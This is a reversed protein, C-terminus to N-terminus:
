KTKFTFEGWPVEAYFGNPIPTVRLNYTTEPTLDTFEFHTEKTIYLKPLGHNGPGQDFLLLAYGTAGSSRNWSETASTREAKTALREVAGPYQESHPFTLLDHGFWGGALSGLGVCNNYYPGVNFGPTGYLAANGNSGGFGVQSLQENVLFGYVVPNFQGLKGLGMYESAANLISVYGAWIPASVSTGGIQIWGGNIKSYVAVGTFPDGVAAVDPVNRLTTSNGSNEPLGNYDSTQYFPISWYSSIGGGTAGENFALENWVQEELYAKGAGSLLTTGGVCTVFPQSGPDSVNLQAPYYRTGTDGYAGTDGASALVSIGQASLQIFLTNEAALQTDGQEIEDAAYSISLTQAKNDTAVQDLADLLAVQFTDTGDEYVLVKELNPNIGIVMDIDLAAELEINAYNVAGNYGNVGVFSVPIQPLKMKDLYTNIDSKYFGGQEFLAVTQPKVEGFGPVAYISRLDSASYAGGPGTGADTKTDLTAPNDGFVQHVKALAAYQLSSTLGIVGAIKPVIDSPITPEVGASYFQQGDLRRYYNLQTKFLTEFQAVSGRVTLLTRAISEHVITLGKSIAWQKLSAFDNADAGYSAAFEGPTLYHRHLPDKPNSLRRVFDAAGQPDALPLSLIVNIQETSDVPSLLTSRVIAPSLQITAGSQASLHTSAFVLSAVPWLVTVRSCATARTVAHEWCAAVLNLFSNRMILLYLLLTM